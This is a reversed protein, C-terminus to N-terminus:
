PPGTSPLISAAESTTTTLSRSLSQPTPQSPAHIVLRRRQQDLRALNRDPPYTGSLAVEELV